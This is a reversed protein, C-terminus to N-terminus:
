RSPANPPETKFKSGEREMTDACRLAEIIQEDDDCNLGLRCRESVWFRIVAPACRDRSLLVFTMERDGAKAMCGLILENAKRM